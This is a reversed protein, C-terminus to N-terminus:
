SNKGEKGSGFFEKIEQFVGYEEMFKKVHKSKLVFIFLILLIISPLLRTLWGIFMSPLPEYVLLDISGSGSNGWGDWASVSILYAGEEPPTFEAMCNEAVKVGNIRIVCTPEKPKLGTEYSINPLVRIKSGASVASRLESFGIHMRAPVVSIEVSCEGGLLTDSSNKIALIYFAQQKIPSDPPIIYDTSYLGGSGTMPLLGTPSLLYVNADEIPIGNMSVSAMFFVRSTRPYKQTPMNLIRILLSSSNISNIVSVSKTENIGDFYIRWVGTPNLMSATYNLENSYLTENFLIYDGVRIILPTPPIEDTKIMITEGKTYVTKDTNISIATCIFTALLLIPMTHSLKM